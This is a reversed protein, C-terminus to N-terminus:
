LTELYKKLYEKNEPKENVYESIHAELTKPNYLLPLICRELDYIKELVESGTIRQLIGEDVADQIQNYHMALLQAIRKVTEVDPVLFSRNTYALTAQKVYATTTLKHKKAAKSLLSIEEKSFSLTIEKEKKRKEQRWKRKYERWYEKRAYQIDEHSGSELVGASNLYDYIQSKSKRM